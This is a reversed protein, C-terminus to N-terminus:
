TNWAAYHVGGRVVEVVVMLWAQGSGATMLAMHM